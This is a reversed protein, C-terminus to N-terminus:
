RDPSWCPEPPMPCTGWRELVFLFDDISVECNDTVDGLVFDQVREGYMRRLKEESRILLNVEHGAEILAQVSHYGIFGTGGTIMVRM